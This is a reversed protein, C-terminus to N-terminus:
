EAEFINDVTRTVYRAGKVKNFLKVGKKEFLHQKAITEMAESVSAASLNMVPQNIGITQNKGEGTEFQLELKTTM